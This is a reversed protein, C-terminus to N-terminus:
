KDQTLVFNLLYNNPTISIYDREIYETSNIDNLYNQLTQKIYKKRFLLQELTGYSITYLKQNEKLM